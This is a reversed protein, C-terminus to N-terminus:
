GRRATSLMLTLAVCESEPLLSVRSRAVTIQPLRGLVPSAMLEPGGQM